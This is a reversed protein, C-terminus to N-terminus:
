RKRKLRKNQDLNRVQNRSSSPFYEHYISDLEGKKADAVEAVM